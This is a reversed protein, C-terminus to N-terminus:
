TGQFHTNFFCFFAFYAIALCFLSFVKYSTSELSPGLSSSSNSVLAEVASALKDVFKFPLTGPTKALRNIANLCADM